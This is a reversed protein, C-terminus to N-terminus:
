LLYYQTAEFEIGHYNVTLKKRFFEKNCVRLLHTLIQIIEEEKDCMCESFEVINKSKETKAMIKHYEARVSHTNLYYVITDEITFFWKM